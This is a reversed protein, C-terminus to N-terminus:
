EELLDAPLIAEEGFRNRVSDVALNLRKRKELSKDEGFLDAQRAIGSEVLGSASIGLLRVPKKGVLTKRLLKGCAAFIEKPDDTPRALTASRTVQVFDCYKVKLSVTFGVRAQRRMRRAVRESLMLLKRQAAAPDKIDTEFTEERGISKITRSEEVVRGDIGAAFEHIVGGFKGFSGTLLEPSLRRLDGITSIGMGALKKHTAPGVGWLRSVPLPSLFEEVNEPAVILLGDPKCLDSAIKSVLKNPGGGVSATLGTEGAIRARINKAITEGTGLLRETGTLDLFAEDISVCEVAPTFCSFIGFIEKSADRYRGMRVPLLVGPPM